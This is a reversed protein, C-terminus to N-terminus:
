ETLIEANINLILNSFINQGSKWLLEIEHTIIIIVSPLGTTFQSVMKCLNLLFKQMNLFNSFGEEVWRVHSVPSIQDDSIMTINFKSHVT